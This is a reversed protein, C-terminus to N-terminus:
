LKEKPQETNYNTQLAERALKTDTDIVSILQGRSLEAIRDEIMEGGAEWAISKLAAEYRDCKAKLEAVAILALQEQVSSAKITTM